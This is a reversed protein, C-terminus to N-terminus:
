CGNIDQTNDRCTEFWWEIRRKDAAQPPSQDGAMLDNPTPDSTYWDVTEKTTPNELQRCDGATRGLDPADAECAELTEYVNPLIENEFYSTNCCYEDSLGLPRHGTEHSTTNAREGVEITFFGNKAFDRFSDLHVVAGADAFSYNMEWDFPKTITRTADSEPGSRSAGGMNRSIWFNFLHQYRNYYGYFSYAGRIIVRVDSLFDPDNSGTYSDEDAVFVVDLRQSSPGTFWVPIAGDGAPEGVAVTRWGTFIAEGGLIGRCGYTIEGAGLPPSSFGNQLVGEGEYVDAPVSDDEFWIELRDVGFAAATEDGEPRLHTSLRISLQEGPQPWLPSHSCVVMWEADVPADVIEFPLCRQGLRGMADEARACVTHMGIGLGSTDLFAHFAETPSDFNGDVPTTPAWPGADVSFEVNIVNSDGRGIDSAVGQAEVIGGQVVTDAPLLEFPDLAPGDLIEALSNCGAQNFSITVGGNVDPIGAAGPGPGPDGHDVDDLLTSLGSCDGLAPNNNVLLDADLSALSALGDLHTLNDNGIILLEPNLNGVSTLGSLPNIDALADNDEVILGELATPGQLGDLSSLVPNFRVELSSYSEVGSLGSVDTLVPNSNIHISGTVTTLASLDDLNVLANDGAIILNGAELVGSLGALSSLSANNVLSLGAPISTLNALPGLGQLSANDQVGLGNVTTLNSLGIINNLQNNGLILLGGLVETLGILGDLDTIANPDAGGILLFGAVSSCPGHNAQFNDVDAQTFLNIDNPTCNVAVAVTPWALLLALLVRMVARHLTM